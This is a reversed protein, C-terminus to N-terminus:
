LLVARTAALAAELDALDKAEGPPSKRWIAHSEELYPLAEGPRGNRRLVDGLFFLELAIPTSDAPLTSRFAGLQARLAELAANLDQPALRGRAVALDRWSEAVDPHRDGFAKHRVALARESLRVAEDTKGEELSLEALHRLTHALDPHDPRQSSEYVKISRAYFARAGARDGRKQAVHGLSM